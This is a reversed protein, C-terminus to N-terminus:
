DLVNINESKFVSEARPFYPLNLTSFDEGSLIKMNAYHNEGIYVEVEMGEAESFLEKLSASDRSSLPVLLRDGYMLEVQKVPQSVFFSIGESKLTIRAGSFSRQRCGIFLLLLFLLLYKM